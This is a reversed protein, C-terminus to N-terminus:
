HISHCIGTRNTSLELREPIVAPPLKVPQRLLKYGFLREPIVIVVPCQM